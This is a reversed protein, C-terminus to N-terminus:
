QQAKSAPNITWVKQAAAFHRAAVNTAELDEELAALSAERVLASIDAGTYRCDLTMFPVRVLLLQSYAM